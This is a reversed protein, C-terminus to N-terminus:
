NNWVKRITRDGRWGIRRRRVTRIVVCDVSKEVYETSFHVVWYSSPPPCRGTVREPRVTRSQWCLNSLHAGDVRSALKEEHQGGAPFCQAYNRLPILGRNPWVRDQSEGYKIRCEGPNPM